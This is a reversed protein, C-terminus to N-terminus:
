RGVGGALVVVVLVAAGVGVLVALAAPLRPSTLEGGRRITHETRAWHVVSWVAVVGGLSLLAVALVTRVTGANLFQAVALGGGVLALGTRLWALFTRENALSFRYDTPPGDDAPSVAPRGPAGATPGSDERVQDTDVRGSRM